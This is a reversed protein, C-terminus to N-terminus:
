PKCGGVFGPRNLERIFGSSTTDDRLQPVLENGTEVFDNLPILRPERPMPVDAGYRHVRVHRAAGVFEQVEQFGPVVQKLLLDPM